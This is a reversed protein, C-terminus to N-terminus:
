SVRALEWHHAIRLPKPIIVQGKSSLKTTQVPGEECTLNTYFNHYTYFYIRDISGKALPEIDRKQLKKWNGLLNGWRKSWIPGPVSLIFRELPGERGIGPLARNPLVGGEFDHSHFAYGESKM